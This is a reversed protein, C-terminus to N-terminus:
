HLILEDASLGHIFYFVKSFSPVGFQKVKIKRTNGHNRSYLTTQKKASAHSQIYVSRKMWHLENFCVKKLKKIDFILFFRCYLRYHIMYGIKM